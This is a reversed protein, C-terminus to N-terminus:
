NHTCCAQSYAHSNPTSDSYGGIRPSDEPKGASWLGWQYFCTTPLRAPLRRPPRDGAPSLPPFHTPSSGFEAPHLKKGGGVGAPPRHLDGEPPSSPPTGSFPVTWACLKWFCFVLSQDLPARSVARYPGLRLFCAVLFLGGVGCRDGAHKRFFRTPSVPSPYSPIISVM